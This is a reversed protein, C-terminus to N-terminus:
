NKRQLNILWTVFRAVPDRLTADFLPRLFPEIRHEWQLLKLSTDSIWDLVASGTDAPPVPRSTNPEM